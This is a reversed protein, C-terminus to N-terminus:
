RAGFGGGGHGGGGFGGFGGGGGSRGVGGRRQPPMMARTMSRHICRHLIVYDFVTMHHGVCWSPPQLVISSFKNEWEDTVGLVQAYPLIKYYLEPEIELMEKIKDEETYLIFDKFGLIQGLKECYEESRSLAGSTIFACGIASIGMALVEFETMFHQALTFTWLVCFFTAVALEAIWVATKKGNKWKYRYNEKLFSCLWIAFIPLIFIVGMLYRYGGGVKGSLLLPVFFAYLAGLLGGAFFGLVSKGQYMKSKPLQLKATEARQYFVYMLDEATVRSGSAFLGKFLTKQHIPADDPLQDVQKILVPEKEDALDIKLYGKHAFYYIMSTVDESDVTGDLLKGLQMPDMDDPAKINVTTIIEHRKRTLILLIVAVALCAVGGFVIKWFNETQLRTATWNQLVGSKFAFTLTIGEAMYEGYYDNYAVRLVDSRFTLTKKDFSEETEVKSDGPLTSGYSSCIYSHDVPTAPLHVTATVNYIPVATGFGVVDLRMGNKVDDVGIEMTYSICYKWKAGRQVGGICNIDLFDDMDPNKAVEFYFAENKEGNVGVCTAHIDYYADGELPLSKYFMTAQSTLFEVTIEEYVLIKRDTQVTLTTDYQHIKIWDGASSYSYDDAVAEIRGNEGGLPFFSGFAGFFLACLALIVAALSGFRSMKVNTKKM